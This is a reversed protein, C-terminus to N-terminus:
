MRHSHHHAHHHHRTAHTTKAHATGTMNPGGCAWAAGSSAAFALAAAVAAITTRHVRM